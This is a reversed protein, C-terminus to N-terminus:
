PAPRRHPGPACGGPMSQALRELPFLSAFAVGSLPYPFMIAMLALTGVHFLWASAVWANRWRGGLLAVPAGLEVVLTALAVPRWIWDRAM